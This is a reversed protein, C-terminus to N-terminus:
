FLEIMGTEEAEASPNVYFDVPAYASVCLIAHMTVESNIGIRYQAVHSPRLVDLYSMCKGDLRYPTSLGLHPFHAGLERNMAGCCMNSVEPFVEDFGLESDARAYYRRTTTDGGVHFITMLKFHFSAITLVYLNAQPPEICGSRPLIQIDITDDASILLNSRASKAFILDFGDKAYDSLV